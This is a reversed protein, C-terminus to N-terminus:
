DERYEEIPANIDAFDDFGGEMEIIQTQAEVLMEDYLLKIDQNGLLISQQQTVVDILDQEMSRAFSVMENMDSTTRMFNNYENQVSQNEYEGAEKDVLPNYLGYKDAKVSLREMLRGDKQAMQEYAQSELTEAIVTYVDRHMKQIELLNVLGEKEAESLTQSSSSSASYFPSDVEEKSCSTFIMALAFTGILAYFNLTKM